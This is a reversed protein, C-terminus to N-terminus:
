ATSSRLVIGTLILLFYLAVFVLNREYIHRKMPPQAALPARDCHNCSRVFRSQITLRTVLHLNQQPVYQSFSPVKISNKEYEAGDGMVGPM